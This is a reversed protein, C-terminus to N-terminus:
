LIRIAYDVDSAYIPYGQELLGYLQLLVRQALETEVPDGHVTLSQEHVDIRVGAGREIAKVHEDHQGLLERFRHADQFPLEVSALAPDALPRVAGRRWSTTHPPWPRM